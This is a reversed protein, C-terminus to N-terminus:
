CEDFLEPRLEIVGLEALETLQQGVAPHDEHM